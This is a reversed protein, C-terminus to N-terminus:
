ARGALPGARAATLRLRGHGAAEALPPGSQRDGLAPTICRSSMMLLWDILSSPGDAM